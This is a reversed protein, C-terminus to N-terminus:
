EKNLGSNKVYYVGGWNVQVDFGKDHVHYTKIYPNFTTSESYLPGLDGSAGVEAGITDFEEYAGEATFVLLQKYDDYGVGPGTGARVMTMFVPKADESKFAVGRGKGAVYLVINVSDNDFVAYGHSKEVEAKAEPHKKYIEELAESSM